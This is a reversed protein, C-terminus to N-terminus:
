FVTKLDRVSLLFDLLHIPSVIKGIRFSTGPTKYGHTCWNVDIYTEDKRRITFVANYFGGPILSSVKFLVNNLENGYGYLANVVKGSKFLEQFEEVNYNSTQVYRKNYFHKAGDFSYILFPGEDVIQDGILTMFDIYKVIVNFNENGGIFHNLIQGTKSSSSMIQQILVKYQTWYKNFDFRLDPIEEMTNKLLYNAFFGLETVDEAIRVSGDIGSNYKTNFKLKRGSKTQFIEDIYGGTEKIESTKDLANKLTEGSYIEKYLIGKKALDLVKQFDNIGISHLYAKNLYMPIQTNDFISIIPLDHICGQDYNKPINLIKDVGFAKIKIVDFLAQNKEALIPGNAPNECYRLLNDIIFKIRILIDECHSINKSSIMSAIENGFNHNNATHSNDKEM